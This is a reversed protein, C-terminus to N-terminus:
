AAVCATIANRAVSTSSLMAWGADHHHILAIIPHKLVIIPAGHATLRANRYKAAHARNHPLSKSSWALINDNYSSAIMVGTDAPKAEHRLPPKSLYSGAATTIIVSLRQYLVVAALYNGAAMNLRLLAANM